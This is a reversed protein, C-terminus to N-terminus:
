LNSFAAIKRQILALQMRRLKTAGEARMVDYESEVALNYPNDPLGTIRGQDPLVYEREAGHPKSEFVTPAIHEVRPAVTAGWSAMAPMAEADAGLWRDALEAETRCGLGQVAAQFRVPNVIMPAGNVYLAVAEDYRAKEIPHEMRAQLYDGLLDPEAICTSRAGAM